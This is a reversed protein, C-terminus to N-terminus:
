RSVGPINTLGYRFGQSDAVFPLLREIAHLLTGDYDLPEQPYDNWSPKLDYLPTLAGKRAWFMTGVPFDFAHPLSTIGLQSALAQAHSRNGMWGVCTPDDPFVLGLNPDTQLATIIRDTMPVGPTGLLNAILFQRWDDGQQRNIQASKKTHLHGHFAYERDLTEGFETLLPGIDRGRNPTIVLEKLKFGFAVVQDKLGASAEQNNCSLFLDPRLTNLNLAKLLEALLDPYHVHIHLATKPISAGYTAPSAPTILPSQWSGEPRGAKIYHVLPDPCRSGELQHERYIGPHFGPFPKRPWIESRWALLYQETGAQKSSIGKRFAFDPQIDQGILLQSLDEKLVQEEQVIEAGLQRLHEIYKPMNFWLEAQELSRKAIIKRQEPNKLLAAAKYAMASTNFYPAILAEGLVPDNLLLNAMGCAREFCLMPKSALMADIAVNPLPDLRSTVLFLDARQMLESYASSHDLIKLHASLGSRQIQDDIWLSVSYDYLPDYGSGIWAFELPLDPCLQSLQDAVAIFLDVGKRPQIEGAALILLAQSDLNRIFQWANGSSNNVGIVRGPRAPRRCPGQPLVEISATQLQPCRHLIDDRTLQSSFVMRSSWLGVDDLLSLPRIYASFEHILSLTPIGISRLPQICGASVISNVIAYQPLKHGIFRKLERRLLTTFVLGFRPLLVLAATKRFDPILAGGRLLIVVINAEVSLEQCLNLALIPAGTASAEHSVVVLTPRQTKLPQEGILRKMGISVILPKVVLRLRIALQQGLPSYITRRIRTFLSM